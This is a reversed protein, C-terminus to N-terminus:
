CCAIIIASSLVVAFTMRLVVVLNSYRILMAAAHSSRALHPVRQIRGPDHDSGVLHLHSHTNRLRSSCHEYHRKNLCANFTAVLMASSAQDGPERLLLEVPSAGEPSELEHMGDNTALRVSAARM